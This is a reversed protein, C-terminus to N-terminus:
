IIEVQCCRMVAIAAEHNEKTTGACLDARVKVTLEPYLAKLLLANSVVCIDTCTGVLEVEDYKELAWDKYGFTPKDLIQGRVQRVAKEIPPVLEWGETNKICHAVPLKKGEASTLYRENHTDRTAIVDGDFTQIREAIKDIIAVANANALSGYTFDNQMDIVILAKM